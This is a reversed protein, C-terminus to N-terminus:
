GKQPATRLADFAQKLRNFVKTTLDKNTSTIPNWKLALNRFALTIQDLTATPPVGLVQYDNANEPLGLAALAEKDAKALDIKKQEIIKQEQAALEQASPKEGRYAWEGSEQALARMKNKDRTDNEAPIGQAAYTSNFTAVPLVMGPNEPDPVAKVTFGAISRAPLFYPDSIPVYEDKLTVIVYMDKDVAWEADRGRNGRVVNEHLAEKKGRDIAGILKKLDPNILDNIKKLTDATYGLGTAIKVSMGSTPANFLKGVPVSYKKIIQSIHVVTDPIETKNIFSFHKRLADAASNAPRVWLTVAVADSDKDHAIRYALIPCVSVLMALSLVKLILVRM